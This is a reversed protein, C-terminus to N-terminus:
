FVQRTARSGFGGGLKWIGIKEPWIQGEYAGNWIGFTLTDREARRWRDSQPIRSHELYKELEIKGYALYRILGGSGMM